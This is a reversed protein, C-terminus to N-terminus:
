SFFPNLNFCSFLLFSIECANIYIQLIVDVLFWPLPKVHLQSLVPSRQQQQQPLVSGSGGEELWVTGDMGTVQGAM